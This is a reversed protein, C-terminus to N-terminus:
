SPFCGTAAWGWGLDLGASSTFPDLGSAILQGTSLDGFGGRQGMRDMFNIPNNFTYAYFNVQGGSLGIPDQSIFRQLVPNYYRARMFYLGTSDMERGTYQLPNTSATGSMTTQGFPGYAHSTGIAGSSNVLGLTSGLLDPLFAATGSLDVRSFYQDLGLGPLMDGVGGTSFQEQAINFMDYVYQTTLAAATQAVRRGLADYTFSSAVSGSVSSLQNRENWTYTANLSPDSLLNGNGDTTAAAGNWTALQNGNDYTATPMAAPLNVAALSGGLSNVRGDNDYGYSLNGLTGGGTSSYTISTPHSDADYQNYNITVGNPLTITTYRGDSDYEIGVSQTGRSESTLHNDKDCGYSTQAQNAATMTLRNQDNDYTYTM